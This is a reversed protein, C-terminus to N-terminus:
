IKKSFKENQQNKMGVSTPSTKRNFSRNKAQKEFNSTKAFYGPMVAGRRHRM